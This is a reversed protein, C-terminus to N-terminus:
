GRDIDGMSMGIMEEPELQQAVAERIRPRDGGRLHRVGHLGRERGFGDLIPAPYEWAL